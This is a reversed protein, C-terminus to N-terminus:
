RKSLMNQWDDLNEIEMDKPVAFLGSETTVFNANPITCVYNGMSVYGIQFSHKIPTLEIFDSNDSEDDRAYWNAFAGITNYSPERLDVYMGSYEQQRKTGALYSFQIM